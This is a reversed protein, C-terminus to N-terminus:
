LEVSVCITISLEEVFQGEGRLRIKSFENSNHFLLSNACNPSRLLEVVLTKEM